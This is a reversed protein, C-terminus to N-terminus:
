FLLKIGLLTTINGEVDDYSM